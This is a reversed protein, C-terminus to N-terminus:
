KYIYELLICMMSKDFKLNSRPSFTIHSKGAEKNLLV